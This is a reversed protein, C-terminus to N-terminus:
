WSWTGSMCSRVARDVADHELAARRLLRRVGRYGIVRSHKGSDKYIVIVVHEVDAFSGHRQRDPDGASSGTAFSL